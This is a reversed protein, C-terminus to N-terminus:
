VRSKTDITWLTMSNAFLKSLLARLNSISAHVERLLQLAQFERALLQEGNSMSVKVAVFHHIHLLFNDTSQKSQIDSIANRM